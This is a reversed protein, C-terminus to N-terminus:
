HIFGFPANHQLTFPRVFEGPAGGVGVSNFLIDLRGYTDITTKVINECDSLSTVDAKVAIAKGKGESEIMEATRQALSLDRDVCVVSCGDEALLIAAARANGIGDGLAGAGTIIAVKGSLSRRPRIFEETM